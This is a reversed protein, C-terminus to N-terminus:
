ETQRKVRAELDLISQRAQKLIEDARKKGRFVRSLVIAGAMTCWATVAADEAARGDGFVKTMREFSDELRAAMLDRVGDDELRGVDAALAAIACGDGRNDRHAASLYRNAISKVTSPVNAKRAAAFSTEGSSIARDVAAAILAARSPFHAYFAGHTLDAAKMLDVISLSDLGGQRIQRAAAALIRERSEAKEAQSHGM